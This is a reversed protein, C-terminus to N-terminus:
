SGPESIPHSTLSMDDLVLAAAMWKGFRGRFSYLSDRAIVGRPVNVIYLDNRGFLGWGQSWVPARGCSSRVDWRTAQQM